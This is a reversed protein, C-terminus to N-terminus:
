YLNNNIWWPWMRQRRRWIGQLRPIQSGKCSESRDKPKHEWWSNEVEREAWGTHGNVSKEKQSNSKWPPNRDTGVRRRCWQNGSSPEHHTQTRPLASTSCQPSAASVSICLQTRQRPPTSKWAAPHTKPASLQFDSNSCLQIKWLTKIRFTLWFSLQKKWGRAIGTFMLTDKKPVCDMKAKQDKGKVLHDPSQIVETDMSGILFSSFTCHFGLLFGSKAAMPSLGSVPIWYIWRSGLFFFFFAVCCLLSFCMAPEPLFCPPFKKELGGWGGEADGQSTIVKQPWWMSFLVSMACGPLASSAPLVVLTSKM